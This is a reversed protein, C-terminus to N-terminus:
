RLDNEEIVEAFILTILPFHIKQKLLFPNRKNVSLENGVTLQWQDIKTL